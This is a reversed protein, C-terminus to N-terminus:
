EDPSASAPEVVVLVPCPARRLVASVVSGLVARRLHGEGRRGMVILESEHRDAANLIEQAPDGYIVECSAREAPVGMQVARDLWPKEAEAARHPTSAPPTGSALAVATLVHDLVGPTTVHVLAVDAEFRRGLLGAWHLAPETVHSDDVPVLVRRPTTARSRSVILVPVKSLELLREATSGMGHWEGPREGQAGTVVMDASFEEALRSLTEAPPGERVELWMREAALSLSLERLRKEAGERLTEILLERRPHEGKAIPPPKPISIVHALVVEAGRGFHQVAWRAAAVSAESFDVGVVLRNLKVM